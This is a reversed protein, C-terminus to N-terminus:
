PTWVSSRGEDLCRFSADAPKRGCREEEASMGAWVKRGMVEKTLFGFRLWKRVALMM